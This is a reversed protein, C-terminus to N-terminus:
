DKMKKILLEKLLEKELSAVKELTKNQNDISKQLEKIM